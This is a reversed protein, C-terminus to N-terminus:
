RSFISSFVSFAGQIAQDKLSAELACLWFLGTVTKIIHVWSTIVIYCIFPPRSPPNRPAGVSWVKHVKTRRAPWVFQKCHVLLLANPWPLTYLHWRDGFFKRSQAAPPFPERSPSARQCKERPKRQENKAAGGGFCVERSCYYRM